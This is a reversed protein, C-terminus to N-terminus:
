EDETIDKEDNSDEGNGSKEKEADNEIEDLAQKILSFKYREDEWARLQILFNDNPKISSKKSRLYKHCFEFPKNYVKMLYAIIFSTSRSIGGQCHVLVKGGTKRVEEIFVIGTHFHELLDQRMDDYLSIKLYTFHDPFHNTCHAAVNLVHTIGLSGLMERKRSTKEEGLYLFSLIEFLGHPKSREGLIREDYELVPLTEDHVFTRDVDAKPQNKMGKKAKNNNNYIKSVYYNNSKPAPASRIVKTERTMPIGKHERQKVIDDEMLMLKLGGDADLQINETFDSRQIEERTWDAILRIHDTRIRFKDGTQRILSDWDGADVVVVKKAGGQFNVITV